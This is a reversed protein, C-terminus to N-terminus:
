RMTLRLPIRKEKKGEGVRPLFDVRREKLPLRIPDWESPFTRKGIANEKDLYVDKRKGECYLLSLPSPWREEPARARFPCFPRRKGEKKKGRQARLPIFQGIGRV